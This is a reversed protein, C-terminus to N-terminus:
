GVLQNMKFIPLLIALVILLVLIGMVLILVPEMISLLTGILTTLEREQNEAARELMNELQGSSEGSAILHITMPPFLRKQALARSIPAGERIRDAAEGVAERMPINTMVEGAIRLAELVPVGSGALISLTRTFRATNAGRTIRGIVPVRLLREHFSRKPGPKKLLARIGFGVAVLIALLVVGHDRLFDSLGILAQTLGPLEQDMDKFVGAVKPVVYVLLLSVIGFSMVTLVIPYIFAQMLKQQVQQSSEAYDALRELVADLHGSSEGAAVTARFIEPFAHPFEGLGHALTHGEMVKSRVALIMNSLRPKETQQAVAGLAEELPIGSRTLTALQRTFLALDGASIGRRLGVGGGTRKERQTVEEVSLPTLGQGRLQARIQRATDGELTGKRTKGREDLATYAFASM